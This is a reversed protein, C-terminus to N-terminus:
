LLCGKMTGVATDHPSRCVIVAPTTFLSLIHSVASRIDTDGYCCARVRACAWLHHVKSRPPPGPSPAGEKRTFFLDEASRHYSKCTQLASTQIEHMKICLLVIIAKGLSHHWTRESWLSFEESWNLDITLRKQLAMSNVNLLQRKKKNKKRKLSLTSRM